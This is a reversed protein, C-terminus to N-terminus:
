KEMEAAAALVAAAHQRATQPDTLTRGPITLLGSGLLTAGGVWVRKHEDSLGRDPEPLEVTATPRPEVLANMLRTIEDLM